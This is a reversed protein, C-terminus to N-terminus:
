YCILSGDCDSVPFNLQERGEYHLNITKKDIVTQGKDGKIFVELQAKSDYDSFTLYANYDMGTQVTRPGVISFYGESFGSDCLLLVSLLVLLFKQRMKFGNLIFSFVNAISHLL